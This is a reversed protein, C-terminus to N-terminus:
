SSVLTHKYISPISYLSTLPSIKSSLQRIPASLSYFGRIYTLLLSFVLFVLFFYLFQLFGKVFLFCDAIIRTWCCLSRVSNTLSHINSHDKVVLYLYYILRRNQTKIKSIQEYCILYFLSLKSIFKLSESLPEFWKM